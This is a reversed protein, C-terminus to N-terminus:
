QSGESIIGPTRVLSFAARPCFCFRFRVGLDGRPRFVGGEVMDLARM